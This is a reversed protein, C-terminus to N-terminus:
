QNKVQNIIPKLSDANFGGSNFNLLEQYPKILGSLLPPLYIISLVLLAIIVLIKLRSFLGQWFLQRKIKKTMSYIEQTLRLNDALLKKIEEPCIKASEAFHAFDKGTKGNIQAM